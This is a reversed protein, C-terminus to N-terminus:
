STEDYLDDAGYANFAMLASDNEYDVAAIDAAQQLIRQREERSLKMLEVATYQPCITGGTTVSDNCMEIVESFVVRLDSQPYNSGLTIIKVPSPWCTTM